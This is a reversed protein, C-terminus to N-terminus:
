RAFSALKRVGLPGYEFAVEATEAFTLSPRKARKCLDHSSKM